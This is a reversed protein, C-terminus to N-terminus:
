NRYNVLLHKKRATVNTEKGVTFTPLGSFLETLHDEKAPDQINELGPRRIQKERQIDQEEFWQVNWGSKRADWTVLPCQALVSKWLRQMLRPTLSHPGDKADPLKKNLSRVNLGDELFQGLRNEVYDPDRLFSAELTSQEKAQEDNFSADHELISTHTGIHTTIDQVQRISFRRSSPDLVIRRQRPGDWKVNGCVLDRLHVWESEPLPPLIRGLLDAWWKKASNMRRKEPMPRNWLNKEAMKLDLSKIDRDSRLSERRAHQSTMLTKLMSYRDSMKFKLKGDQIQPPELAKHPTRPKGSPEELQGNHAENPVYEQLLPKMLDHRRKGTRGYTHELVRLLPKLEGDNARELVRLYYEGNKLLDALRRPGLFPDSDPYARYRALVHHHVWSRANADPLYTAQRLLARLLHRAHVRGFNNLERVSWTPLTM